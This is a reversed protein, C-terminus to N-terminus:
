PIYVECWPAHGSTSDGCGCDCRRNVQQEVFVVRQKLEDLESM